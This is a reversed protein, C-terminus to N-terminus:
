LSPGTTIAILLHTDVPPAATHYEWMMMTCNFIGSSDELNTSARIKLHKNELLLQFNSFRTEHRRVWDDDRTEGM